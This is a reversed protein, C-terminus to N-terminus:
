VVRGRGDRGRDRHRASKGCARRPAGVRRAALHFGRRRHPLPPNPIHTSVPVLVSFKGSMGGACPSHAVFRAAYLVDGGARLRRHWIRRRLSDVLRWYMVDAGRSLLLMMLFFFDQRSGVAVLDDM